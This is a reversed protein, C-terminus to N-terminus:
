LIHAKSKIARLGTKPSGINPDELYYNTNNFGRFFRTDINDQMNKIIDSFVGKSYENMKDYFWFGQGSYIDPGPKETVFLDRVANVQVPYIFKHIFTFKDQKWRDSNEFLSNLSGDTNIDKVVQCQKIVIQPLDPTWYFLEHYQHDMMESRASNYKPINVAPTVATDHFQFTYRGNVLKPIPKDIGHLHCLKKGNSLLNNWTSDTLNMSLRGVGTPMFLNITQFEDVLKDDSLYDNISEDIYIIRIKTRSDKLVKQLYPIAAFEIESFINKNTRDLSNSESELIRPRYMVVEDLLIVNNIFSHLVNTSDVGGSYYLSIFDYKERLQLARKRYLENLGTTIPISWDISSFVSDNFNWYVSTNLRTAEILADAKNLFTKDGVNYFGLKYHHQM